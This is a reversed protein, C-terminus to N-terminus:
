RHTMTSYKRGYYRWGGLALLGLALLVFTAPEPVPQYSVGDMTFLQADPWFYLEAHDFAPGSYAFLGAAMGSIPDAPDYPLFDADISSFDSLVGASFLLVIVADLIKGAPPDPWVDLLSFTFALGTAPAAFDLLLAGAVTGFIGSPDVIAYDVGSGFDEYRFTVGNGTYGTPNIAATIDLSIPPDNAPPGLASFDVVTAMATGAIAIQAILSMAVLLKKM